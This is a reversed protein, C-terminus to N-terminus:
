DRFGIFGILGVFGMFGMLGIFGIFFLRFVLSKRDYGNWSSGSLGQIKSAVSRRVQLELGQLSFTAVAFLLFLSFFPGLIVLM